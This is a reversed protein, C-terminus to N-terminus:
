NKAMKVTQQCSPGRPLVSYRPHEIQRVIARESDKSILIIYKNYLPDTLFFHKKIKYAVYLLATKQM